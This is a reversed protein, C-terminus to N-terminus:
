YIGDDICKASGGMVSEKLIFYKIVRRTSSGEIFSVITYNITDNLSLLLIMIM